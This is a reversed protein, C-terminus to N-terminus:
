FLAFDHEAAADVLAPPMAQHAFGTGLGLGALGHSALRAVYARQTGPDTLAMGTTLLLEGGSLFPTPDELESIHVWRVVADLGQGGSAPRVDLDSLLDRLTLMALGAPRTRRDACVYKTSAEAAMSAWERVPVPGGRTSSWPIPSSRWVHSGTTGIRARSRSTIATSRGPNPSDATRPPVGSTAASAAATSASPISRGCTAPLESPPPIASSSPRRPEARLTQAM